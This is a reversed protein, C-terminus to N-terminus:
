AKPGRALMEALKAYTDREDPQMARYRDLVAAEDATVYEPEAGPKGETLKFLDSPQLGFAAAIASIQAQSPWRDGNEIKSLSSRDGGKIDGLMGVLADISWGRKERERRIATGLNM